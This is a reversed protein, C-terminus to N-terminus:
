VNGLVALGGGVGREVATATDDALRGAAIPRAQSFRRLDRGVFSETSRAATIALLVVLPPSITQVLCSHPLPTTRARRSLGYGRLRCICCVASRRVCLLFM